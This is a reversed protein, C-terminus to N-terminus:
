SNFGLAECEHVRRGCHLARPGHSGLRVKDHRDHGGIVPLIDRQVGSRSVDPGGEGADAAAAIKDIEDLFVIGLNETRRIAERIVRDMDIRNEFEEELLIERAEAVSCM